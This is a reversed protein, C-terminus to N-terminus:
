RSWDFIEIFLIGTPWLLIRRSYDKRGIFKILFGSHGPAAEADEDRDGFPLMNRLRGALQIQRM